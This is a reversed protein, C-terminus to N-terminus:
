RSAVIGRWVSREQASGNLLGHKVRRWSMVM